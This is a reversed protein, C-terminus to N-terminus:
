KRGVGWRMGWGYAQDLERQSGQVYRVERRVVLEGGVNELMAIACLPSRPDHEDLRVEVQAGTAPHLTVVADAAAWNPVGEYIFAYM